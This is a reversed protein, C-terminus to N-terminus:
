AFAYVVTVDVSVDESGAQIPVDSAASRAAQAMPYGVGQPASVVDTISVVQGLQRGAAAAYQAAKTHADDMAATRAGGVLGSTDDLAVTVGDVRVADGGAAVADSLVAGAKTLDRLRAALNESVDYGSPVGKPTYHPQISLGSTQLDKANVGNGRLSKQVTAMTANASGLAQDISAATATVALSLRLTDPTGTVKGTGTVTIGQVGADGATGTTGARTGLATLTALQAPAQGVAQASSPVTSSSLAPAATARSSGVAYALLVGLVAIAVLAVTRRTVTLTM